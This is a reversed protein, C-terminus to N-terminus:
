PRLFVWEINKRVSCCAEEWSKKRGPSEGESCTLCIDHISMEEWREQSGGWKTESCNRRILKRYMEDQYRNRPPGGTVCVHLVNPGSDHPSLLVGSINPSRLTSSSTNVEMPFAWSLVDLWLIGGEHLCCSEAYFHLFALMVCKPLIGWSM